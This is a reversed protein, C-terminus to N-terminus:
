SLHHEMAYRVVECNSGLQMKDLLRTRHTSVTKPSISLEEAIAKAPKGAAILLMVQFERNSLTEHLPRGSDSEIYEALKEALSASIYRGGTAVKLIGARLEGASCDKTLYGSAGLKLARVAYQEESYASLMLVPLQPKEVKIQQLTELGSLGPMCIDLLVVDLDNKRIVRLGEVGCSAEFTVQMEPNAAVMEKVGVRVIAHDDVILISIM